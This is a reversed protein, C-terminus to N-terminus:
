NSTAAGSDSGGSGNATEEGTFLKEAVEKSPSPRSRSTCINIKHEIVLQCFCFVSATTLFLRKKTIGKQIKTSSNGPADVTAVL